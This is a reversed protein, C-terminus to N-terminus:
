KAKTLLKQVMPQILVGKRKTFSMGYKQKNKKNAKSNNIVNITGRFEKECQECYCWIKIVKPKHSIIKKM